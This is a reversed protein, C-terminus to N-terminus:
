QLLYSVEGYQEYVEYSSGDPFTQYVGNQYYNNETCQSPQLQCQFPTLDTNYRSINFSSSYFWPSAQGCYYAVNPSDYTTTVSKILILLTMFLVPIIIESLSSLM